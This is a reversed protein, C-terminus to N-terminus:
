QGAGEGTEAPPQTACSEQITVNPASAKLVVPSALGRVGLNFGVKLIGERPKVMGSRTGKPPIAYFARYTEGCKTCRYIREGYGYALHTSLGAVRGNELKADGSCYPCKRVNAM